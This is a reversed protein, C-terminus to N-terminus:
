RFLNNIKSSLTEQEKGLVENTKIMSKEEDTLWENAEMRKVIREMITIRASIIENIRDVDGKYSQYFEPYHKLSDWGPQIQRLQELVKKWSEIDEVKYNPPVYGALHIVVVQVPCNDLLGEVESVGIDDFDKNLLFNKYEPIEFQGEILEEALFHGLAYVEGWVINSYGSDRMAKQMNYGSVVADFSFDKSDLMVKGRKRASEELRPEYRLKDVGNESRRLNLLSLYEKKDIRIKAVESFDLSVDRWTKDWVGKQLSLPLVFRVSSIPIFGFERSDASGKRNDGMVFISDDPVEVEKCERLFRQGFTSRPLATYPEALPMGNLYVIGERLQIKDKPLGVIRKVWGSEIGYIDKTIARIKSDEVVVIDGRSLSYGFFRRDLIRLGNPYPLMYASTATEKALEDVAKSKGKPFTPYMSGTGSIFVEEAKWGVKAMAFEFAFAYGASWTPALVFVSFSFVALRKILLKLFESLSVAANKAFPPAVAKITGYIPLILFSFIGFLTKRVVFM